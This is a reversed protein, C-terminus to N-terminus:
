HTQGSFVWQESKLTTTASNVQYETRLIGTITNGKDSAYPVRMTMRNNGRLIDAQWACWFYVYGRGLLGTDAPFANGRNPLSLFLVGNSKSMEAPRLIIFDSIYEVMGRSNRPALQIDQIISNLQNDPDVEGYAQGALDKM